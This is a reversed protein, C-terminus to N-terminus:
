LRNGFGFGYNPVSGHADEFLRWEVFSRDGECLGYGFRSGRAHDAASIAFLGDLRGTHAGFNRMNGRAAPGRQLEQCTDLQRTHRRQFVSARISKTECQLIGSRSITGPVSM